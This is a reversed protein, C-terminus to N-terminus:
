LIQYKEKCGTYLYQNCLNWSSLWISIGWSKKKKKMVRIIFKSRHMALPVEIKCCFLNKNQYAGWEVNENETLNISRDRIKDISIKQTDEYRLLTRDKHFYYRKSSWVTFVTILRHKSSDMNHQMIAKIHVYFRFM